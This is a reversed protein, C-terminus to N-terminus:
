FCNGGGSPRVLPSTLSVPLLVRASTPIPFTRRMILAAHPYFHSQLQDFHLQESAPTTMSLGGHCNATFHIVMACWCLMRAPLKDVLLSLM